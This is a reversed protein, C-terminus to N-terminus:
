CIILGIAYLSYDANECEGQLVSVLEIYNHNFSDVECILM